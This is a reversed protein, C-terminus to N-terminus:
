GKDFNTGPCGEGGLDILGKMIGVKHSTKLAVEVLLCTMSIGVVFVKVV